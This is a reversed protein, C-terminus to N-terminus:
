LAGGGGVGGRVVGQQRLHQQVGEQMAQAGPKLRWARVCVCVSACVCVCACACVCVSACVCVCMCVCVRRLHQHVGEQMAQGGAGGGALRDRAQAHQRAM